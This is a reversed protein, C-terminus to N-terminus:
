DIGSVTVGQLLEAEPGAQEFPAGDLLREVYTPPRTRLGRLVHEFYRESLHGQDDPVVQFVRDEELLEIQEIDRATRFQGLVRAEAIQLLMAAALRRGATPDPDRFLSQIAGWAAGSVVRVFGPRFGSRVLPCGICDLPRMKPEWDVGFTVWYDVLLAPLWSVGLRTAPLERGPPSCCAAGTAGRRIVGSNYLVYIAPVGLTRAADLLLQRQPAPSPRRITPSPTYDFDYSLTDRILRGRKAQVLVGFWETGDTFWWMWDAGTHRSEEQRTFVRSIAEPHCRALLLQTLTEEHADFGARQTSKALRVVSRRGTALADRPSRPAPPM